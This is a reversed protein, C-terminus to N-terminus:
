AFFGLGPKDDRAFCLAADAIRPNRRSVRAERLSFRSAYLPVSGRSDIRNM